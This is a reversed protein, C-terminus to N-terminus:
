SRLDREWVRHSLSARWGRNEGRQSLEELMVASASVFAGAGALGAVFRLAIWASYDTTLGVCVTAAAVTWLSTRLLVDRARSTPVFAVLVAGMLHGLYNSSALGAAIANSLDFREQMAPLVPTYAFRGIGTAVVLALIGAVVSQRLSRESRHRVETFRKSQMLATDTAALRDAESDKRHKM